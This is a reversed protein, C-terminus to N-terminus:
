VPKKPGPRAARRQMLVETMQHNLYCSNVLEYDRFLEQIERNEYIRTMPGPLTEYHLRDAAIIRYRTATQEVRKRCNFLALLHGRPKLLAAVQKLMVAAGAPDFYDFLDWCVIAHFAEAPQRIEPVVVPAPQHDIKPRHRPQPPTPPPPELTTLLDDVTVKCGHHIWWEINQDCLRGLDLLHPADIEALAQM